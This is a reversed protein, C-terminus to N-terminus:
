TSGLSCGDDATENGEIISTLWDAILSAFIPVPCGYITRSNPDWWSQLAVVWYYRNGDPMTKFGFIPGGSMGVINKVGFWLTVEGIFWPFESNPIERHPIGTWKVPLLHTRFPVSLSDGLVGPDHEVPGVAEEPLGLLFYNELVERPQNLWNEEKVPIIGNAEVGARYFPRLYMIGIDLGLSQDDVYWKPMSLYDILTPHPFKAQPGISDNFGVHGLKIQGSALPIDIGRRLAHGATVFFWTDRFSMVFGSFTAVKEEGIRQGKSDLQSYPVVLCVLHRCMEKTAGSYVAQVHAIEEPTPENM